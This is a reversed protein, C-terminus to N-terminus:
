ALAAFVDLVEVRADVRAQLSLRSQRMRADKKSKWAEFERDNDEVEQEYSRAVMVENQQAKTIAPITLALGGGTGGLNADHDDHSLPHCPPSLTPSLTPSRTTDNQSAIEVVPLHCRMRKETLTHGVDSCWRPADIRYDAGNTGTRGRQSPVSTRRRLALGDSRGDSRVYLDRALAQAPSMREGNFSGHFNSSYAHSQGSSGHPAVGHVVHGQNGQVM